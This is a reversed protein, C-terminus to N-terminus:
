CDESKKMRTRRTHGGHLTLKTTLCGCTNGSEDSIKRFPDSSSVSLALVPRPVSFAESVELARTKGSGPEPSLFAIRPTSDWAAMMHAHAVWLVHAVHADESPYAVFGGLFEYVDQLLAAGDIDTRPIPGNAKVKQAKAKSARAAEVLRDLVKLQMPWDKVALKRHGQYEIVSCESLWAVAEQASVCQHLAKRTPKVPPGIDLGYDARHLDPATSNATM